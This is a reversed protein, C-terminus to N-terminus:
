IKICRIFDKELREKKIQQILKSNRERVKHVREYVKGEPFETIIDKNFIINDSKVRKDILDFM